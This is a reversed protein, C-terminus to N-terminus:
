LDSSTFNVIVGFMSRQTLKLTVHIKLTTQLQFLYLTLLVGFLLAMLEVLLLPRTCNLNFEQGNWFLSDTNHSSDTADQWSPFIL